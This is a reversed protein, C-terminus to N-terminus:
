TSKTLTKSTDIEILSSTTHNTDNRPFFYHLPFHKRHSMFNTEWPSNGTKGYSWGKWRLTHSNGAFYLGFEESKKGVTISSLYSVLICISTLHTEASTKFVDYPKDYLCQHVCSTIKSVPHQTVCVSFSYYKESVGKSWSANQLKRTCM